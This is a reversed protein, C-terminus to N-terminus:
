GAIPGVSRESGFDLRIHTTVRIDFDPTESPPSQGIAARGSGAAKSGNRIHRIRSSCAM